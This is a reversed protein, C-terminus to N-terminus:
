GLLEHLRAKDPREFRDLPTWLQADATIPLYISRALGLARAPASEWALDSAIAALDDARRHLRAAWAGVHDTAALSSSKNNNCRADALVLNEIADLPVRAWPIFHDVQANSLSGACYFCRGDQLERLRERVPTLDQRPGGFLHRELASDLAAEDGALGNIDSVMLTWRRRIVPRLLGSLRVLHDGAGPVFRILNDSRTPDTAYIFRVENHRGLRQLKPLPMDILTGEVRRALRAYDDAREVRFTGLPAADAGRADRIHDPITQGKPNYIQRLSAGHFPRVQNWYIAIVADALQRTTISEPAFGNRTFREQCVDILGLLVAFKYTATTNTRDLLEIMKEAFSLASEDVVTVAGEGDRGAM